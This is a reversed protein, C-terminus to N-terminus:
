EDEDRGTDECERGLHSYLASRNMDLKRSKKREKM